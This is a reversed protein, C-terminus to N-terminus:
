CVIGEREGPVGSSDIYKKAVGNRSPNITPLAVERGNIAVLLNEFASNDIKGTKPDRRQLLVAELALTERDSIPKGEARMEDVNIKKARELEELIKMGEKIGTTPSDTRGQTSEMMLSRYQHGDIFKDKIIGLAERFKVIGARKLKIELDPDKFNIQGDFGIEPKKNGELGALTLFAQVKESSLNMDSLKVLTRYMLIADRFETDGIWASNNRSKEFDLNDLLEQRLDVPLVQGIARKLREIAPIKKTKGDEKVEFVKESYNALIQKLWEDNFDIGTRINCTLGIRKNPYNSSLERASETIGADLILLQIVEIDKIKGDLIYHNLTRLAQYIMCRDRYKEEVQELTKEMGHNTGYRSTIVDMFTENYDTMLVPQGSCVRTLLTTMQDTSIKAGPTVPDYNAGIGKQLWRCIALAKEFLEGRTGEWEIYKIVPMQKGAVEKFIQGGTEPDLKPKGLPLVRKWIDARAGGAMSYFRIEDPTFEQMPDDLHTQTALHEEITKEIKDIQRVINHKNFEAEVRDPEIDLLEKKVMMLLLNRMNTHSPGRSLKGSAVDVLKAGAEICSMLVEPKEGHSHVTVDVDGVREKIRRVLQPLDDEYGVGAFDKIVIQKAGLEVLKAAYDVYEDITWAQAWHDSQNIYCVAGEIFLGAEPYTDNYKKVASFAAEVNRYDNNFDFVRFVKVRRDAFASVAKEIIEDSVPDFGVVQRGRLLMQIITHPTTKKIRELNFLPDERRQWVVEGGKRKEMMAPQAFEGGGTMEEPPFYGNYDEVVIRALEDIEQQIALLAEIEVCNGTVSQSGDRTTVGRLYQLCKIITNSVMARLDAPDFNFRTVQQTYETTRENM